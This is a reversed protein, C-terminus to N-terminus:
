KPFLINVRIFYLTWESRQKHFATHLHRLSIQWSGKCLLIEDDQWHAHEWEACRLMHRYYRHQKNPLTKKLIQILYNVETNGKLTINGYKSIKICREWSLIVLFGINKLRTFLFEFINFLSSSKLYNWVVLHENKIHSGVATALHEWGLVASPKVKHNQQKKPSPHQCFGLEASKCCM